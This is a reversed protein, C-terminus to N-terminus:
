KKFYLLILSMIILIIFNLYWNKQKHYIKFLAEIIISIAFIISWMITLLGFGLFKDTCGRGYECNKDPLYTVLLFLLIIPIVLITLRILLYYLTKIHSKKLKM